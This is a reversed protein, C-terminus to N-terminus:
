MISELFERPLLGKDILKRVEDSSYRYIIDGKREPSFEWPAVLVIDGEKVWVRRRMRGPIRASRTKGDVCRVIIHDGGLMREAVCLVTAEDPLPPEKPKEERSKKKPMARM